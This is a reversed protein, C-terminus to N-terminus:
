KAAEPNDAPPWKKKSSKKNLFIFAGIGLLVLIVSAIVFPLFNMGKEVTASSTSANQEDNGSIQVVADSYLGNEDEVRVLPFFSYAYPQSFDFKKTVKAGTEMKSGDGLDWKYSKIKGTSSSADLEVTADKSVLVPQTFPDTITKGDVKIIAKPAQTNKNPLINIQMSEFEIPDQYSLDKVKLFVLYSGPKSYSTTSSLGSGARSNGFDWLFDSPNVTAGPGIPLLNTDITFSLTQNVIFNEAAIENPVKFYVSGSAALNPQNAKGNVSIFPPGGHAYTPSPFFFLLCVLLLIRKM